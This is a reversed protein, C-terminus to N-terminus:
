VSHGWADSVLEPADVVLHCLFLVWSVLFTLGLRRRAGVLLICLVLGLQVGLISCVGFFGFCRRFVVWLVGCLCMGCSSVGM